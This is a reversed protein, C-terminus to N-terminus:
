LADQLVTGVHSLHSDLEYDRIHSWDFELAGSDVDYFRNLLNQM